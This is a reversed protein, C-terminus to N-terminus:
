VELTSGYFPLGPGITVEDPWKHDDFLAWAGFIGPLFRSRPADTRPGSGLSGVIPKSCHIM